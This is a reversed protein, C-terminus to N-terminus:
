AVDEPHVRYKEVPCTFQAPETLTRWYSTIIGFGNPDRDTLAQIRAGAAEAARLTAYEDTM